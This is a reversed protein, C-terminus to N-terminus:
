AHAKPIVMEIGGHYCVCDADEFIRKISAESLDKPLAGYLVKGNDDVGQAISIGQKVKKVFAEFPLHYSCDTPGYGKRM